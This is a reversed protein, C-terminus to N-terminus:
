LNEEFNNCYSSLIEVDISSIQIFKVGVEYPFQGSKKRSLWVVEGTAAIPKVIDQLRIELEMVTEPKLRQIAPFRIGGKSVDMSHSGYRLVDNIVQYSIELNKSVRVHHRRNKEPKKM